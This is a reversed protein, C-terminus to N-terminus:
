SVMKRLLYFVEIYTVRYALVLALMVAAFGLLTSIWKVRNALIEADFELSQVLRQLAEDLRGPASAKVYRVVYDPLEVSVVLEALPTGAEALRSARRFAGKTTSLAAADSLMRFIRQLVIDARAMVRFATWLRLHEWRELLPRVGPVLGLCAGLRGSIAAGAITALAAYYCLTFLAKQSGLMLAADYIARVWPTMRDLFGRDRFFRFYEPAFFVVFAWVFVSLVGLSVLSPLLTQLVSRKLVVEREIREAMTKLTEVTKASPSVAELLNCDVVPFGASRLASHLSAARATLAAMRIAQALRPDRVFEASSDIAELVPVECALRDGLTRYFLALDRASFGPALWGRLTAVVSLRLKADRLDVSRLRYVAEDFSGALMVGSTEGRRGDAATFRYARELM